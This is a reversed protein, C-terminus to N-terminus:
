SGDPSNSSEILRARGDRVRARIEAVLEDPSKSPSGCDFPPQPDYELLLQVRKAFEVGHVAAALHLGMDIGASVGAGTIIREDDHVVVREEVPLAGLARLDDHATWNTTATLGELIGARALLLSGTCVSTTWTTTPHVAAIWDVVPHGTHVIARTIFGGPVVIIDPSTVDDFTHDVEVRLAGRDDTIHGRRDAVYVLEAEPFNCLAAYPGIADLATFKDFIAVAVQM